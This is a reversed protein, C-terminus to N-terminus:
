GDSWGELATVVRGVEDDSLEPYCPLSLIRDRLGAAVPVPV